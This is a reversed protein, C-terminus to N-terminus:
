ELLHYRPQCFLSAGGDTARIGAYVADHNSRSVAFTRRRIEIQFTWPVVVGSVEAPVFQPTEAALKVGTIRAMDSSFDSPTHSWVPPALVIAVRDLSKMSRYTM